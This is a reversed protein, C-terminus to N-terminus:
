VEVEIDEVTVDGDDFRTVLAVTDFPGFWLETTEDDEDRTPFLLGDYADTSEGTITYTFDGVKITDGEEIQFAMITDTQM